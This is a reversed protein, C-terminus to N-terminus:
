SSSVDECSPRTATLSLIDSPECDGGSVGLGTRILVEAQISHVSSATTLAVLVSKQNALEASQREVQVEERPRREHGRESVCLHKQRWHVPNPIWERCMMKV